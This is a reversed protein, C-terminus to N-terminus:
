TSKQSIIPYYSDLIDYFYYYLILYWNISLVIVELGWMAFWWSSWWSILLPGPSLFSSGLSAQCNVQSLELCIKAAPWWWQFYRLRISSLLKTPPSNLKLVIYSPKQSVNGTRFNDKNKGLCSWLKAAPTSMLTAFTSCQGIAAVVFM